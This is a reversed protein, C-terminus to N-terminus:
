TENKYKNYIIFIFFKFILIYTIYLYQGMKFRWPHLYSCNIEPLIAQYKPTPNAL